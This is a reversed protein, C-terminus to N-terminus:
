CRSYCFQDNEDIVNYGFCYLDYDFYSEVYYKLRRLTYALFKDDDGLIIVYEGKANSVLFNWNNAMGLNHSQKIFTINEYKLYPEIVRQIEKSETSDDDSIIIEFDNFDNKLISEICKELYSPRNYSPILISFFTTAAITNNNVLNRKQTM